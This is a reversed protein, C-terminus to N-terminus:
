RTKPWERGSRMCYQWTIKPRPTDKSVLVIIGSPQKETGLFFQAQANGQAAAHEILAAPLGCDSSSLGREEAGTKKNKDTATFSRTLFPQHYRALLRCSPGFSSTHLCGSRNTLYRSMAGGGVCMLGRGRSSLPVVLRRCSKGRMTRFNHLFTRV